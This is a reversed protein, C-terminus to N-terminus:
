DFQYTPDTNHESVDDAYRHLLCCQPEGRHRGEAEPAQQQHHSSVENAM